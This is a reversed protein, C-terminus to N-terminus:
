QFLNDKDSLDNEFKKNHFKKNLYKSIVEADDQANKLCTSAGPSPTINFIIGKEKIKAGGFDLRKEKINIIQPRIGGYGRAFKLDKSKMNPVINRVEKIFLMKGIFPLDYLFNKILYQLMTYDFIIKMLANNAKFSIGATKFYEWVTNYKHRELMFLAKSTPGFRTMNKDHVEPDGHIAAFPLKKIQVRYVKGNLVKPAFYFSGAVSLLAFDCGYGMSRAFLLSHAGATLDIYRGEFDGNNTTIKYGDKIKEIDKLKTNFFIDIKKNGKIKKTQELFSESLMQYDITYGEPSYLALIKDEPDRGNIVNPEIREIEKEYILKLKPFLHKFEDYRKKLEEVEKNGIALVMKNYKTFCKKKKDNKELYNRVFDAAVKVKTAKQLTYNTEIDGFHLTQSNNKTSSNVQSAKSYKEILAIREINTYKTLVYLLATGVIGGGVIIVEYENQSSKM